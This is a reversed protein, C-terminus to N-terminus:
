ETTKGDANKTQSPKKMDPTPMKRGGNLMHSAWDEFYGDEAM